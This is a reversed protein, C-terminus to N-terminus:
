AAGWDTGGAGYREYGLGRMLAHWLKATDRITLTDPRTASAM